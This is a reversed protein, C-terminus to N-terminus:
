APAASVSPIPSASPTTSTKEKVVVEIQSVFANDTFLELTIKGDNDVVMKVDELELHFGTKTLELSSNEGNAPVPIEKVVESGNFLKIKKAVNTDAKTIAGADGSNLLTGTVITVGGRTEPRFMELNTSTLTGPAYSKTPLSTTYDGPEKEGSGCAALGFTLLCASGIAATTRFSLRM